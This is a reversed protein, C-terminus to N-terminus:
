QKMLMRSNSGAMGASRLLDETTMTSIRFTRFAEARAGDGMGRTIGTVLASRCGATGAMDAASDLDLESDSAAEASVLSPFMRQRGFRITAPIDTSLDLGGHGGAAM